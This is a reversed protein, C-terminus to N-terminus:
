RRGPHACVAEVASRIEPWRDSTVEVKILSRGVFERVQELHHHRAKEPPYSVTRGVPHFSGGEHEPLLWVRPAKSDTQIVVPNGNPMTLRAVKSTSHQGRLVPYPKAGAGTFMRVLMAGNATTGSM